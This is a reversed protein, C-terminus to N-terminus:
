FVQPLYRFVAETHKRSVMVNRRFLHRFSTFIRDLVDFIWQLLFAESLFRLQHHPSQFSPLPVKSNAACFFPFWEPSANIHVSQYLLLLFEKTSPGM